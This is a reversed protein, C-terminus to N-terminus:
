SVMKLFLKICLSNLFLIYSLVQWVNIIVYFSDRMVSNIFFRFFSILLYLFVFHLSLTLKGSCCILESERERERKRICIYILLSRSIMQFIKM